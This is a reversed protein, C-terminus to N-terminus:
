KLLKILVLIPLIELTCLYFIIHYGKLQTTGALLTSGKFVGWIYLVGLIVVGIISIILHNTQTYAALALLVTLIMTGWKIYADKIAILQSLNKKLDFLVGTLSHLFRQVSIFLFAIFFIKIFARFDLMRMEDASSAYLLSQLFLSLVLLMITELLFHFRVHSDKQEVLENFYNSRVPLQVFDVFRAGEYYRLFAFLTVILLLIATPWDSAAIHPAEIMARLLLHM